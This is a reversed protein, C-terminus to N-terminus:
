KKERPTQMYLKNVQSVKAASRLVGLIVDIAIGHSMMATKLNEESYSKSEYTSMIISHGDSWTIKSAGIDGLIEEAKIKATETMAEATKKMTSAQIFQERVTLLEICTRQDAITEFAVPQKDNDSM